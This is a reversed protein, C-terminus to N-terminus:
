LPVSGHLLPNSEVDRLASTLTSPATRRAADSIRRLASEAADRV